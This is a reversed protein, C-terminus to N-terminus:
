RAEPLTQTVTWHHTTRTETKGFSLTGVHECDAKIALGTPLDLDYRCSEEGTMTMGGIAARIQDLKAPEAKAVFALLATVSDRFSTPDVSQRWTVVARGAAPDYSELVYTTKAKAQLGPAPGPLNVDYAHPTGLVLPFDQVRGVITLDGAIMAMAAVDSTRTDNKDVVVPLKAFTARVAKEDVFRTPILNSGVEVVVPDPFSRTKVLDPPSGASPTATLPTITLEATHTFGGKRWTLRKETLLSWTETKGDRVVARSHDTRITWTAGDQLHVFLPAAKVAAAALLATAIM